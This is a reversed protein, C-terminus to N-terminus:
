SGFLAKILNYKLEFDDSKLIGSLMAKKLSYPSRYTVISALDSEQYDKIFKKWDTRARGTTIILKFNDRKIICENIKKVFETIKEGKFIKNYISEIFSLHIVLFNIKKSIKIENNQPFKFIVESRNNVKNLSEEIEQGIYLFLKDEIIKSNMKDKFIEYIRNDIIYVGTLLAEVIEFKTEELKDKLSKKFIGHNRITLKEKEPADHSFGIQYNSNKYEQGSTELFDISNNKYVIEYCDTDFKINYRTDSKEDLWYKLWKGYLGSYDRVKNNSEVIRIVGEDRKLLSNKGSKDTVIIKYRSYNNIKYEDEVKFCGINEGKWIVFSFSVCGEKHNSTIPNKEYLMNLPSEPNNNFDKTFLQRACLLTQSNGGMIPQKLEYDYTGKGFAENINNVIKKFDMKDRFNNHELGVNFLYTKDNSSIDINLIIEKGKIDEWKYHKINRIINEFITYLSQRGVNMGPLFINRNKYIDKIEHFSNLLKIFKYNGSNDTDNIASFDIGVFEKNDIKFKIKHIQENAVITGLFLPNNIFSWLVSYISTIEGGFTEGQIVGSWFEAKENLYNIFNYIINDISIPIYIKPKRTNEHEIAFIESRINGFYEIIDLLSFSDKKKILDINYDIEKYFKEINNIKRREGYLNTEEIDIKKYIKSNIKREDLMNKRKAFYTSLASLSHAAINHSFSDLLISVNAYEKSKEVLQNEQIKDVKLLINIFLDSLLIDLVDYTNQVKNESIFDKDALIVLGTPESKPLPYFVVTKNYLFVLRIWFLFIKWNKEGYVERLSNKKNNKNYSIKSNKIWDSNLIEEKIKKVEEKKNSNKFKKLLAEIENDQINQRELITLSHYEKKLQEKSRCRKEKDVFDIIMPTSEVKPNNLMKETLALEHFWDVKVAIHRAREFNEQHLYLKSFYRKEVIAEPIVQYTNKLYDYFTIIFIRKDSICFQDKLSEFLPKQLTELKFLRQLFDNDHYKIEEIADKIGKAIKAKNNIIRQLNKINNVGNM